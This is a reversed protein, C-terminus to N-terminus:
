PILYIFGRGLYIHYGGILYIFGHIGILYIF